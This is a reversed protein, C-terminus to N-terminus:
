RSDGQSNVQKSRKGAFRVDIRVGVELAAAAVALTAERGHPTITDTTVANRIYGFLVADCPPVGWSRCWSQGAGLYCFM